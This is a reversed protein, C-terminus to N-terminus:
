KRATGLCVDFERIRSEAEIRYVSLKNVDGTFVLGLDRASRQAQRVRNADQQRAVTMHPVFGEPKPVGLLEGYLRDHLSRVQEAGETVLLFLYEDDVVTAESLEVRFPETAAAVVGLRTVLQAADEAQDFPYALTIHAPVEQALPDWARRFEEVRDTNGDPFLM